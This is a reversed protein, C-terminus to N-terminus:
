KTAASTSTTALRQDTSSDLVAQGIACLDERLTPRRRLHPTSVANNIITLVAHVLARAEAETLPRTNTILHLWEALYDHQILRLRDQQEQTLNGTEIRVLAMMDPDALSVDVYSGLVRRLAGDESEAGRLAGEMGFELAHAGKTLATVLLDNKSEFHNYVSAGSIDAAAGIDEMSVAQYGRQAFLRIAARLLADRRSRRLLGAPAPRRGASRTAEPEPLTVACAAKTWAVLLDQFRRSSLSTKHFSPSSLASIASWSLLDAHEESLEPRHRQLLDRFRHAGAVLRDRLEQRVEPSAHRIERLWLVGAGRRDLERAAMAGLTADLGHPMASDFASEFGAFADLTCQALLAQKNQFHRYLAGPTIGVMGAIEGMNVHHYGRAAFLESAVTIILQKRDPPRKRTPSGAGSQAREMDSEREEAALETM